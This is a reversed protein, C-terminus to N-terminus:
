NKKPILAIIRTPAGSGGAIKMPLAILIFDRQPLKELSAVNEMAPVNGKFLTQHTLFNESQGFDISPTDIGVAKIKRNEVLWRAAGPHLGPFHLNKVAEKGRDSTGMYKVRDPWFKGYGTRLLVISDQPIKGHKKEWELLDEVFIQYDPNKLAKETVDVLYGPGVLQQIPIEDVSHMGQAFHVPADLHTGGHEAGDFRNAEYYYGKDTMGRFESKLNFDKETPWYITNEDFPYTLDVLNFNGLQPPAPTCGVLFWLFCFGWLLKKM